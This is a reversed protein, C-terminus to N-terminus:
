AYSGLARARRWFRRLDGRITEFSLAQAGDPVRLTLMGVRGDRLAELLPAFWRSELELLGERFAEADGLACAARLADLALLHRGDRPARALWEGASRPLPRHRMGALRALGLAVPEDASVSQWPGHAAAPLAGAGWLWLSNVAPAGREGRARNVPHDHLLMQLENLLAHWRRTDPGAALQADLDSGAVALPSENAVSMEVELRACWREPRLPYLAFAGAFHRGLTECLAEAEERAIALAASPVLALADGHLRLHVPDARMWLASGPAGDPTGDALVTLAGAALPADEGLFAEALWRESSLAESWDPRGRALLMELAPLRLGGLAERLAERAPLLGPVLLELHM